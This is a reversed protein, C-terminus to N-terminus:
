GNESEKAPQEGAFKRVLSALSEVTEQQEEIRGALTVVLEKLGEGIEKHHVIKRHKQALAMRQRASKAEAKIARAKWKQVEARLAYVESMHAVVQPTESM